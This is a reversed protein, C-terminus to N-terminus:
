KLNSEPLRAVLVGAANVLEWTPLESAALYDLAARNSAEGLLRGNLRLAAQDILRQHWAAADGGVARHLGPPLFENVVWAAEDLLSWRQMLGNSDAWAEDEEPYGDPTSHDFLGMGARELFNQLAWDIETRGAVRLVRLGYDLPSALRPEDRAEWFAPHEAIAYLAASLEGGSELLRQAVADVLEDPAPVSAYHEALKRAVFHATDPHAALVERALQVRDWRQHPAAAEFALGLLTRARGDSLDPAYRFQLSSYPGTGAPPAEESLTVGALLGALETVDHQTYGQDVGLTHLELLERAYNENLALATSRPQDLYYLMAPSTFSTALHEGFPAAGLRTFATYEYWEAPGGVKGIWTSLHNQVWLSLRASVPDDTRLLHRLAGRVAWYENNEFLLAEAVGLAAREGADLAGLRDHLWADEGRVLLAALEQPEPGFAFRQLLHLARQYASLAAPPEALM